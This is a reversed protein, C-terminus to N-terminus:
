LSFEGSSCNLLTVKGNGPIPVGIRAGFSVSSTNHFVNDSPEGKWIYNQILSAVRPEDLKLAEYMDEPPVIENESLAELIFLIGVPTENGYTYTWEVLMVESELTEDSLAERLEEEFFYDIQCLIAEVEKDKPLTATGNFFGIDVSFLM